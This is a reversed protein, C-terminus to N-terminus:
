NLFEQGEKWNAPCLKDEQSGCLYHYLSEISRGVKNSTITIHQIIGKPDIIYAARECVGNRLIGLEKPLKQDIVSGMLYQINGIDGNRKWEKHSYVSDTSVTIINCNKNTFKDYYKNLEKLETPCVYTFNLPYFFFLTWKNEFFTNNITIIDNNQIIEMSFEPFKKNIINIIKKDCFM